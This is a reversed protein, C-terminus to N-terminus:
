FGGPAPSLYFMDFYTQYPLTNPLNKIIQGYVYGSGTGSPAVLNTMTLSEWADFNGSSEVQGALTLGSGTCDSSPFWAVTLFTQGKAGGSPTRIMVGANYSVGATIPVCQYFGSNLGNPAQNTALVAGSTACGTVDLASEILVINADFPTWGAVNTDFGGNSLLNTGGPTVCNGGCSAGVCAGDASPSDPASDASDGEASADAPPAQQDVPADDTTTASDPPPPATDPGADVYSSTEAGADASGVVDVYTTDPMNAADATAADDGADTMTVTADGGQGGGADAMAGDNANGTTSSDDSADDGPTADATGYADVQGDPSATAGLDPAGADPDSNPPPTASGEDSGEDSADEGGTTQTGARGGDTGTVTPPNVVPHPNDGAPTTGADGGDSVGDAVGDELVRIGFVGDCAVLVVSSLALGLTARRMSTM